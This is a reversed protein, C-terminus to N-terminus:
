SAVLVDAAASMHAAVARAAHEPDGTEIARVIELHRAADVNRRARDIGFQTISLRIMGTLGEWSRILTDNRSFACLARHFDLDADIRDAMGAGADGDIAAALGALEACGEDRRPSEALTAAALGELAGRVRYLGDLEEADLRRVRMRGRSDEVLLGETLLARLAERATGRSIQLQRATDVEPMPSDPALDGATIARRLANSAQDRLTTRRLGSIADFGATM